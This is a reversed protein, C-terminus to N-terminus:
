KLRVRYLKYDFDEKAYISVREKYHRLTINVKKKWTLNDAVDIFTCFKKRASQRLGRGLSQLLRVKSKVPTALVINDINIINTGTSFVGLSAVIISQKNEDVIKRIREREVGEVAGSVFYVPDTTKSKIKDYLLKGHKDVFRFLVLTNGKLSLTLNKIFENRQENLILWKVEGEYTFKSILKCQEDPYKLEICKIKPRAVFGQEVLESTTTLKIIKGFLGELVLKHTLSDDITGTFGFKNPVKTTKEMIGILSKSKATHAEDVIVLGFKNFWQDPLKYISQWTSITIGSFNTDRGKGELISHVPEPYGYEVFDKGMQYVLATTPVIILTDQKYFQSLLYIILSKGSATPSLVLGRNNRVCRIFTNLQYDRVPFPLKLTNCFEQAEIGSLETQSFDSLFECEYDRNTCFTEVFSNMGGYFRGDYRLLCISGNWIGAKYKPMHFYGPVKFTMVDALEKVVGPEAIVRNYVENVREIQVLLIREL